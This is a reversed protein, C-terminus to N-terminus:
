YVNLESWFPGHLLCWYLAQGPFISNKGVKTFTPLAYKSAADHETLSNTAMVNWKGENKENLYSRKFRSWTLGLNHSQRLGQTLSLVWNLQGLLLSSGAQLLRWMHELCFVILTMGTGLLTQQGCQALDAATASTNHPSRWPKVRKRNRNTGQLLPLSIGTSAVLGSGSCNM